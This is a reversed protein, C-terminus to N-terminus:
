LKCSRLQGETRDIAQRADELLADSLRSCSGAHLVTNNKHVLSSMSGQEQTLSLWLWLLTSLMKIWLATHACRLVVHMCHIPVSCIIHALARYARPILWQLTCRQWQAIMPCGRGACRSAVRGAHETNDIWVTLPLYKCLLDPKENNFQVTLSLAYLTNSWLAISYVVAKSSLTSWLMIWVSFCYTSYMQLYVAHETSCSLCANPQRQVLQVCCLGMFLNPYALTSLWSPKLHSIPHGM